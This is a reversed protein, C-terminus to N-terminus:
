ETEGVGGNQGDPRTREREFWAWERPLEEVTERLNWVDADVPRPGVLASRCVNWLWLFQAIGMLYGGITALIQLPAFTVPYTAMRRPLGMNGLLTLSFFTILVGLLTLWVHARALHEDYLRGTLLPFWYYNAAFLAFTVFGALLLHFHGVVYYTGHYVHNVPVAALFIGMVGGLIFTSLAFLCCLTPANLRIRGGWLTALWNFTKVTSPLAIALSVAMFGSQLRPDLGTTMMHHGWVGFGLVGLALTSYVVAWAGFLQQGVLRPLIYSIVGMAPLVLIYVEPHGWFWFLHQFLMPSGGEVAFYTTELNRDALLMVLASGLVPFAFIILGATTLVTWSFVDLQVWPVERVAIVTVILNIGSVITAVGSLHLGLLTLDVVPNLISTSMPPYLTWGMTPPQTGPLGIIQVFVGARVLLLAPPLLWFGFANLRPFAMDDSGILPPLLLNAIGIAVPTVFFFLMTLGHTTFFAAYTEPGWIGTEPTLLETRIAMADLAGWLGAFTGFAVYLRGIDAHDLTTIWRRVGDPKACLM